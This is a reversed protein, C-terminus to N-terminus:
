APAPIEEDVISDLLANLKEPQEIPLMHGADRIVAFRDLHGTLRLEAAITEADAPPTLHDFQGVVVSTPITLKQLGDTVDLGALVRGWEARVDSPCTAVMDETYRVAGYSSYGCLATYRLVATHLRNHRVKIPSGLVSAGLRGVARPAFRNAPALLTAGIFGPVADRAYTSVLVAHHAREAVEDTYKGAWAMITIAGMSHGVLLAKRDKPVAAGLVAHLDDALVGTTYAFAGPESEGHGRQDYSIVRYGRGVFHEVQGPFNAVNCTWGHVFVAVPGDVPGWSRVHLRTGDGSVVFGDDRPGAYDEILKAGQPVAPARLVFAAAGAAVGAAGVGLAGLAGLAIKSSKKM